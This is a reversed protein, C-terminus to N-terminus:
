DNTFTFFCKSGGSSSHVIQGCLDAHILKHQEFARSLSEKPIAQKHEKGLVCNDCSTFFYPYLVNM